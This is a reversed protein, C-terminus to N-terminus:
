GTSKSFILALGLNNFVSFISLFKVVKINSALLKESRRLDMM